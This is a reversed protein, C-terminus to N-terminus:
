LRQRAQRRPSSSRGLSSQTLRSMPGQQAPARYGLLGLRLEKRPVSRVSGDHHRRCRYLDRSDRPHRVPDVDPLDPRDLLGTRGHLVGLDLSGLHLAPMALESPETPDRPWLEWCGRRRGHRGGLDGRGGLTTLHQNRGRLQFLRLKRRPNRHLRGAGAALRGAVFLRRGGRAHCVACVGCVEM